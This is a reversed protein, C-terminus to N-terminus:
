LLDPIEQTAFWALEHAECTDVVFQEDEDQPGGARVVAVAAAVDGVADETDAHLAAVQRSSIPAEIQVGGRSDDAEPSVRDTDVALVLRRPADGVQEETRAALLQLCAQAALTMAVYELEEEDGQAYWERLAGTVAFGVIPPPGIGGSELLEATGARTVPVFVRM